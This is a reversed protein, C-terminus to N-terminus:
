TLPPWEGPSTGGEVWVGSCSAPSSCVVGHAWAPGRRTARAGDRWARPPVGPQPDQGLHPVVTQAEQARHHAGIAVDYRQREAGNADIQEAMRLMDRIHQLVMRVIVALAPEAHLHPGQEALAQRGAVPGQPARLPPEHLGREM